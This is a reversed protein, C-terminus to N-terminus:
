RSAGKTGRGKRNRRSEWLYESGDPLRYVRRTEFPGVGNSDLLDWDSAIKMYSIESRKELLTRRKTARSMRASASRLNQEPSLIM